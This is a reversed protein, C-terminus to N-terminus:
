ILLMFFQKFIQWFGFNMKRGVMEAGVKDEQVCKKVSDEAHFYASMFYHMQEVAGEIKSYDKVEKETGLEKRALLNFSNKIYKKM